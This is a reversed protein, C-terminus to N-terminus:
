ALKSCVNHQKKKKEKKKKKEWAPNTGSEIDDLLSFGVLTCENDMMWQFGMIVRNNNNMWRCCLETGGEYSLEGRIFGGGGGGRGGKRERTL